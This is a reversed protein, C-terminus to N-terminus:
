PEESAVGDKELLTQRKAEEALVNWECLFLKIARTAESSIDLATKIHATREAGQKTLALQLVSETLGYVSAMHSCLQELRTRTEEDICTRKSKEFEELRKQLTDDAVIDGSMTTSTSTALAAHPM